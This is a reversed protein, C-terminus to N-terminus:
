YHKKKQHAEERRELATEILPRIHDVISSALSVPKLIFTNIRDVTDRVKEVVKNIDRLILIVYILTVSLFVTLLAIAVTLVIYFTTNTNLLM